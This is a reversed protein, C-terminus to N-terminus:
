VSTYALSLTSALTFDVTKTLAQGDVGAFVTASSGTVNAATDDHLTIRKIQYNGSGTPITSLHAVTQATRIPTADFAQDFENGPSGLTTTGAILATASDDWAMSRVFRASAYGATQSITDGARQLGQNCVIASM